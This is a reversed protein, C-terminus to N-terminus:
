FYNANAVFNNSFLLLLFANVHPVNLRRAHNMETKLETRLLTVKHQLSNVEQQQFELLQKEDTCEAYRIL